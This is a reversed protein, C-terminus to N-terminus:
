LAKGALRSRVSLQRGNGECAADNGDAATGDGREAADSVGAASAGGVVV